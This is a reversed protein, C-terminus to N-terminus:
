IWEETSAAWLLCVLVVLMLLLSVGLFAYGM